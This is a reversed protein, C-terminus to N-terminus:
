DLAGCRTRCHELLRALLAEQSLRAQQAALGALERNERQRKAAALGAGAGDLLSAMGFDFDRGMLLPQPSAWVSDHAQYDGLRAVVDLGALESEANLPRPGLQPAPTTVAPSCAGLWCLATTCLAPALRASRLASVWPCM